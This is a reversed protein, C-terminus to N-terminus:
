QTNFSRYLHRSHACSLSVFRLSPFFEYIPLARAVATACANVYQADALHVVIAVAPLCFLSIFFSSAPLFSVLIIKSLSWAHPRQCFLFDLSSISSPLTHTHSALLVFLTFKMSRFIIEVKELRQSLLLFRPLSPMRALLATSVLRKRSSLFALLPGLSMPCFFSNSCRAVCSFPSKVSPLIGLGWSVSGFLASTVPGQVHFVHSTMHHCSLIGRGNRETVEALRSLVDQSILPAAVPSATVLEKRGVLLVSKLAEDGSLAESSAPAHPFVTLSVRPNQSLAVFDM